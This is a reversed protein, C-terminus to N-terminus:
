HTDELEGASPGGGAKGAATAIRPRRPLVRDPHCHSDARTSGPTQRARPHEPRRPGSMTRGANGDRASRPLTKRTLAGAANAAPASM